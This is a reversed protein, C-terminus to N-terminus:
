FLHFESVKNCDEDQSYEIKNGLKEILLNQILNM